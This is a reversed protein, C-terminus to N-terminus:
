PRDTETTKERHNSRVGLNTRDTQHFGRQKYKLYDILLSAICKTDVPERERM